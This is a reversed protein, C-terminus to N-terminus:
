VVAVASPLAFHLLAHGRSLPPLAAFLLKHLASACGFRDCAKAGQGFLDACRLIRDRVFGDASAGGGRFHDVRSSARVEKGAGENSCVRCRLRGLKQSESVPGDPLTGDRCGATYTFLRDAGRSAM